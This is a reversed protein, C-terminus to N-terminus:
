YFIGIDGIYVRSDLFIDAYRPLVAYISQILCYLILFSFWYFYLNNFEYILATEFLLMLKIVHKNIYSDNNLFGIKIFGIDATQYDLVLM